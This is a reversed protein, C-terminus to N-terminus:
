SNILYINSKQTNNMNITPILNKIYSQQTLPLVNQRDLKNNTINYEIYTHIYLEFIIILIIQSTVKKLIIICYFM